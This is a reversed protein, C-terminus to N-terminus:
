ESGKRAKRVDMYDMDYSKAEVHKQVRTFTWGEYEYGTGAGLDVKVMEKIKAKLADVEKKVRGQEAQARGLEMLLVRLGALDEVTAETWVDTLPPREDKAHITQGDHWDAFYPCPFQRVDCDPLGKVGEEKARDIMKLVRIVRARIQGLTYPPRDIWYPTVDPVRVTGDERKAGVLYLAPLRTAAMECALQWGYGHLGLVGEITKPPNKLAKAEVVRRAKLEDGDRYRDGEAQTRFKQAIGDPHLRVVARDNVRIEACLQGTADIAGYQVLSLDKPDAPLVKWGHNRAAALITAEARSGEDMGKQVAAPKTRNGETGLGALVLNRVCSGLSSARFVYLGDEMYVDPRHDARDVPTDTPDTM